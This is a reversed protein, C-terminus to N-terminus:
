VKIQLKNVSLEKQVLEIFEEAKDSPIFCGAASKHGGIEGGVTLSPIELLRKLNIDVSSGGVVRSSVKIRGDETNALGILVTGEPYIFSFSLITMLTGIITHKISNGSNVIIYGEGETKKNMSIWNLGGILHHKYSSYISEANAKAKKDGMCFSLATDAFGMRGCANILASLERADELHNFFKLLYIKGILNEPNSKKLTILTLLRSLEEKNLDLLTKYKGGDKFKIGAERILNMAGIASGTVGPIYISSFELAKNLPRTSPFLLISKKLTIDKADKIVSDGIKGVEQDVLDGVMGLVALQALDTNRSSLERAFLYVIESSSTEETETLTPNIFHINSFLKLESIEHHDIIFVEGEIKSIEELVSSGLDLFFTIKNKEAKLSEVEKKGVQNLISIRFQRDIRKLATSLIAGSTIGDTDYHTVIRVEGELARFESVAKKILELM